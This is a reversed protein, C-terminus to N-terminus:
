PLPGVEGRRLTLTTRYGGAGTAHVARTVYYTGSFRPGVGEVDVSRGPRLQPDGVTAATATVLQQSLDRFLARALTDAEQQSLV